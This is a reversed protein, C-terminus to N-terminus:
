LFLLVPNLGAHPSLHFMREADQLWYEAEVPLIGPGPCRSSGDGTTRSSRKRHIEIHVAFTQCHQPLRTDPPRFIAELACWFFLQM